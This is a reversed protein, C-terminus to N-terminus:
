IKITGSQVINYMYMRLFSLHSVNSLKSAGARMPIADKIICNAVYNDGTIQETQQIHTLDHTHSHTHTYTHTHTHTHTHALPLRLSPPLSLSGKRLKVSGM